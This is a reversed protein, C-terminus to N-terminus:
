IARRWWKRWLVLAKRRHEGGRLALRVIETM